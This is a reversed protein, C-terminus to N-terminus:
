SLLAQRTALGGLESGEEEDVVMVVTAIAVSERTCYGLASAM